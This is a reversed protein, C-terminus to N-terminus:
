HNVVRELAEESYVETTGNELLVKWYYGTKYSRIRELLICNKEPPLKM